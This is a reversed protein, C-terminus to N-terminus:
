FPRSHLRAKERFLGAGDHALPASYCPTPLLVRDGRAKVECLGTDSNPRCYSRISVTGRASSSGGEPGGAL